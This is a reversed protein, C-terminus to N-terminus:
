LLNLWKFSDCHNKFIIQVSMQWSENRCLKKLLENCGYGDGVLWISLNFHYRAIIAITISLHKSKDTAFLRRMPLAAVFGAGFIKQQVQRIMGFVLGTVVNQQICNEIIQFLSNFLTWIFCELKSLWIFHFLLFNFKAIKEHINSQKSRPFLNRPIKFVITMLHIFSFWRSFFESRSVFKCM